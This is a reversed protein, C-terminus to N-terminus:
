ELLVLDFDVECLRGKKGEGDYVFHTRLITKRGSPLSKALNNKHIDRLFPINPEIMKTIRPGPTAFAEIAKQVGRLYDNFNRKFPVSLRRNISVTMEAGPCLPRPGEWDTEWESNSYYEPNTYRNGESVFPIEFLWQSQRNMKLNEM